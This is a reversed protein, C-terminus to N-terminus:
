RLFELTVAAERPTTVICALFRTTAPTSRTLSLSQNIRPIVKIFEWARFSGLPWAAELVWCRWALRWLDFTCIQSMGNGALDM